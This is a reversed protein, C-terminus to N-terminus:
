GASFPRVAVCDGFSAALRSVPLRQQRAGGIEIDFNRPAALVLRDRM